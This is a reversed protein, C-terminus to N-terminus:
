GQRPFNFVRRANDEAIKRCAEDPLHALSEELMKRAHPWNSDSHPYDGEFMINDVGIRDIQDLGADDSIFCGYINSRFIESPRRADVM